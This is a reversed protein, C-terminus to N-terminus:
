THVPVDRLPPGQLAVPPNARRADPVLLGLFYLLVALVLLSDLPFAKLDFMHQHLVHSAITMGFLVATPVLRGAALPVLLILISYYYNTLDFICFMPLLGAIVLKWPERVRLCVWATLALLLPVLSWYAVRRESAAATRLSKWHGYPDEAGADVVAPDVGARTVSLLTPLGVYNTLPTQRHKTANGAFSAYTRLGDTAALSFAFLVAFCLGAGRLIRWVRADFRRRILDRAAAVGPGFLLAGPFIRDLLALALGMGGLAFWGMKSLCVAVVAGFVWYLRGFSGVGGMGGYMWLQATGWLLAAMAAADLGFARWLLAFMAVLLAVDIWRSWGVTGDDAVTSRVVLENLATWFPSANYGHDSLYLQTAEPSTRSLFYAVDSRFANWREASFVDRCRAPDELVDGGMRLANTRLERVKQHAVVAARGNDAEAIVVCHYLNEYGLEKFYKAGLYYHFQDQFSALPLPSVTNRSAGAGDGAVVTLWNSPTGFHVLAYASAVTLLLLTAPRLRRHLDHRSAPKTAAYALVLTAALVAAAPLRSQGSYLLAVSISYALAGTAAILSAIPAYPIAAKGRWVAIALLCLPVIGFVISAGVQLWRDAADAHAAGRYLLYVLTIVSLLFATAGAARSPAGRGVILAFLALWGLMGVVLRHVGVTAAYKRASGTVSWDFRGPEVQLAPPWPAPVSCYVQLESIAYASHPRPPELRIWRAEQDLQDTQRLHMGRGEAAPTRWLVFWRQGDISGSLTYGGPDDGQLLAARVRIPRGLDFAVPRDRVVVASQRTQWGFGASVLVGDTLREPHLIQVDHARVARSLVNGPPCPQAHLALSVGFLLAAFPVRWGLM